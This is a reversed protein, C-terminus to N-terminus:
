VAARGSQLLQLPERTAARAAPWLSALVAVALVSLVGYFVVDWPVAMPTSMAVLRVALQRADISLLLGSAVGMAAGVLALLAAEALILRLLQWRTMGVSRLVGLQWMRSRISAMVTNTVGLSAVAIAAIALTSLLMLVKQFMQQIHFKIHRVDGVLLGMAGVKQRVREQIVHRPVGYVDMNAAFLTIREVGFDRKADEMSGFLSAVSREELQRRMDFMSVFVDIGPSWVVAAVTYDVEGGKPTKLKIKDGMGLGKLQRFEETVIVHRGQRLKAVADAQNGERFELGMMNLGKEPEFGIFMTTDTLLAAGFLQSFYGAPLGTFATAIPLVEDDKVGEVKEIDASREPAIGWGVFIFVDPFRDPLKWANLVTNGQTHMVILIALGVMLAAATGAARWIGGTLQQQVLGLRLRLVCAVAPALLREVLWIFAPALLFFGIMLCPLGVIFHGWFWVMKPLGPAFMLVPDVAVLVLGIAVAALPVRTRANGQATLGELPSIRMAGLAPLLSAIVATALAGIAAYNLGSVSYAEGAIFVYPRWWVLLKIWGIGLPLGVAVGIAALLVGELVVIAAIQHRMAGVARLMSLTRQREMVGMSLTSFIIFGAALLSISAALYSMLELAYFHKEFERRSESATRLKILPDTAALKQRLEAAYADQDIDHRLDVVVRTLSGQAGVWEQLTELPMYATPQLFALIAPKHVIGSVQLQLRRNGDPLWVQDGVKVHLTSAVEQDIVIAKADHGTFWSGGTGEMLKMSRIEGDEPLQVGIAVVQAAFWPGRAAGARLMQPIVEIRGTAHNIRDDRRMTELLSEDIGQRYDGKRTLELDTSGLYEFIFQLVAAKASTYGSTMAVVLSVSMAIALCTLVARTKHSLLTSSTLKLIAM